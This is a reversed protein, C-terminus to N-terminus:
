ETVRLLVKILGTMKPLSSVCVSRQYHMHPMLHELDTLASAAASAAASEQQIIHADHHTHARTLTTTCTHKYTCNHKLVFTALLPARCRVYMCEQVQGGAGRSAHKGM